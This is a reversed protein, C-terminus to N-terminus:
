IMPGIQDYRRIKAGITAALIEDQTSNENIRDRTKVFLHPRIVNSDEDKEITIAAMLGGISQCRYSLRKFADMHRIADFHSVNYRESFDYTINEVHEGCSAKILAGNFDDRSSFTIDEVTIRDADDGDKLHAAQANLQMAVRNRIAHKWFNENTIEICGMVSYTMRGRAVEAFRLGTEMRSVSRDLFEEMAKLVAHHEWAEEESVRTQEVFNKSFVVSLSM